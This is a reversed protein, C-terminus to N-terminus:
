KHGAFVLYKYRKCKFKRLRNFGRALSTQDTSFLFCFITNKNKFVTQRSVLCLAGVVWFFRISGLHNEFNLAVWLQFNYRQAFPWSPVCQVRSPLQALTGWDWKNPKIALWFFTRLTYGFHPQESTLVEPSALIHTLMSLQLHACSDSPMELCRLLVHSLFSGQQHATTPGAARGTGTLLGQLPLSPLPASGQPCCVVNQCFGPNTLVAESISSLLHIELILVHYFEM